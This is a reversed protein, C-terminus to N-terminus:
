RDGIGVVLWRPWGLWGEFWWWVKASWWLGWGWRQQGDCFGLGVKALGVFGVELKGCDERRCM